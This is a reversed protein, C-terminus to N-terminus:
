IPTFPLAALKQCSFHIQFIDNHLNQAQKLFHFIKLLIMFSINLHTNNPLSGGLNEEIHKDTYHASSLSGMSSLKLRKYMRALSNKQKTKNNMQQVLEM